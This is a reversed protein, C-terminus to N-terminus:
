RKLGEARMRATKPEENAENEETLIGRRRAGQDEEAVLFYSGIRVWVFRDSGYFIEGGCFPPILQPASGSSSISPSARMKGGM